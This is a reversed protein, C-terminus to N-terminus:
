DDLLSEDFEEVGLDVEDVTDTDEIAGALALDMMAEPIGDDAAATLWHIFEYSNPQVLGGDRYMKALEWKARACGKAASKKYWEIAQEPEYEGELGHHYIYALALMAYVDGNQAAKQMQKDM